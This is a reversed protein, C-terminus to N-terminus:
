SRRIVDGSRAEPQDNGNILKGSQYFQRQEEVSYFITYKKICRLILTYLDFECVPNDGCRYVPLTM